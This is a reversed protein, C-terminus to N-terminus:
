PKARPEAPAADTNLSPLPASLAAARETTEKTEATEAVIDYTGVTQYRSALALEAPYHGEPRAEAPTLDSWLGAERAWFWARGSCVDSDRVTFVTEFRRRLLLKQVGWSWGYYLWLERTPYPLAHRVDVAAQRRIALGLARTPQGGTPIARRILVRMGPQLRSQWPTLRCFPRTMEAANRADFVIGAHGFRAAEDLQTKRVDLPGRQVDSTEAEIAGANRGRGDYLDALMRRQVRQLLWDGGKGWSGALLFLDGPWIQGSQILGSFQGVTLQM